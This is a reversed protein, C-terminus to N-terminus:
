ANTARNKTILETLKEATNMTPDETVADLLYSLTQGIEKGAIGLKLLDNGGLALSQISPCIGDKKIRRLDYFLIGDAVLRYGNSETM